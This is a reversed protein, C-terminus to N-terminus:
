RQLDLVLSPFLLICLWVFYCRYSANCRYNAGTRYKIVHLRYIFLVFAILQYQKILTKVHM